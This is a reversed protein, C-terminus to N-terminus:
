DWETQERVARLADHLADILEDRTLEGEPTVTVVHGGRVTFHQPESFTPQASAPVAAVAQEPRPLLAAELEASIDWVSVSADEHLVALSKGDPAFSAHIAPGRGADLTALLEPDRGPESSTAPRMPTDTRWLHMAGTWTPVAVLRASPHPVVRIPRWGDGSNRYLPFPRDIAGTSPNVRSLFGNDLIYLHSGDASFAADDSDLDIRLMEEGATLDYVVTEGRSDVALRTGGADHALPMGIGARRFTVARDPGIMATTPGNESSFQVALREGTPATVLAMIENPARLLTASAGRVTDLRAINADVSFFAGAGDTLAVERGNDEILGRSTLRAGSRSDLQEVFDGGRRWLSLRSGGNTYRFRTGTVSVDRRQKEFAFHGRPASRVEAAVDLNWLRTSPYSRDLSATLARRGTRDLAVKARDGVRLLAETRGTGVDVIAYGRELGSNSRGPEKFYGVTTGDGSLALGAWPEADQYTKLATLSTGDWEYLKVTYDLSLTAVRAPNGAAAVATVQKGQLRSETVVAGTEVDWVRLTAQSGETGTLLHRGSPSFAIAHLTECPVTWGSVRAGSGVDYVTIDGRSDWAAIRRGSPAFLLEANIYERLAILGPSEAADADAYVARFTVADDNGVALLRGDPSLALGDDADKVYALQRGTATDWVFGEDRGTRGLTRSFDASATVFQVPYDEWELANAPRLTRAVEQGFSPCCLVALAILGTPLRFRPVTRRRPPSPPPSQKFLPAVNVAAGKLSLPLSSEVHM